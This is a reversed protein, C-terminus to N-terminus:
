LCPMGWFFIDAVYYPQAALSYDTKGQQNRIMTVGSSTYVQRVVGWPVHCRTYTTVASGNWSVPQRLMYDNTLTGEKAYYICYLDNPNFSSSLSAHLLAEAPGTFVVEINQLPAGHAESDMALLTLPEINCLSTYLATGNIKYQKAYTELIPKPDGTVLPFVHRSRSDTLVPTTHPIKYRGLSYGASNANDPWDRVPALKCFWAPMGKYVDAVDSAASFTAFTALGTKTLFSDPKIVIESVATCHVMKCATDPNWQVTSACNTYGSSTNMITGDGATLGATDVSVTADDIIRHIAGATM